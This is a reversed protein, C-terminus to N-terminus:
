SAAHLREFHRAAYGGFDFDIDSVASQVVGWMAERFDSLFRGKALNCSRGYAALLEEDPIGNNVAFNGLDFDRDGMGAYEWDLILLRGDADELFNAALLDNHCPVPDYATTLTRARDLAAGYDPPPEVDRERAIAAYSQVVALADFTIPLTGGCDHLARLAAAVEDVRERLEGAELTRGDVFRTVLVGDIGEAVAPGIGLRAALASARAECARDIGLLHTDVGPVRVVYDEDGFRVRYNRNTIGGSLAVAEGHQPGLHKALRELLDQVRRGYNRLMPMDM